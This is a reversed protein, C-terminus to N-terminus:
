KRRIRDLDRRDKKTPRGAGEEREFPTSLKEKKPPPPPSHDHYLQRAETAPGRRTGLDVVELVIVQTGKMLAVVDGVRVGFSPKVTRQTQSARTIRVGSESIVKSALNRTKFTRAYWLWRDLRQSPSQTDTGM